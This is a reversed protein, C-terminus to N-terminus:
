DDWGYYHMKCKESCFVRPISTNYYDPEEDCCGPESENYHKGCNDCILDRYKIIPPKYEQEVFLRDFIFEIIVEINDLNEGSFKEIPVIPFIGVISYPSLEVADRYCIVKASTTYDSKFSSFFNEFIKTHWNSILNYLEKTITDHVLIRNDEGHLHFFDYAYKATIDKCNLIVNTKDSYPIKELIIKVTDM